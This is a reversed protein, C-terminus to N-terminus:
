MKTSDFVTQWYHFSLLWRKQDMRQNYVQSDPSHLCGTTQETTYDDPLEKFLSTASPPSCVSRINDYFAYLLSTASPVRSSPLSPVAQISQDEPTMIFAYYRWDHVHLSSRFNVRALNALVHFITIALDSYPSM